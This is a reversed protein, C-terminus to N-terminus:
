SCLGESIETHQPKAAVWGAYLHTVYGAFIGAFPGGLVNSLLAFYLNGMDALARIQPIESELLSSRVGLFAISDFIILSVVTWVTALLIRQNHSHGRACFFGTVVGPLVSSVFLMAVLIHPAGQRCAEMVEWFPNEPDVMRQVAPQLISGFMILLTTVSASFIWIRRDPRTTRISKTAIRPNAHMAFASRSEGSRKALCERLNPVGLLTTIVAIVGILPEYNGTPNLYWLVALLGTLSVLLVSVVSFWLSYKRLVSRPPTTLQDEPSDM